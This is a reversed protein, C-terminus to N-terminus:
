RESEPSRSSVSSRSPEGGAAAIYLDALADAAAIRSRLRDIEARALAREFDLLELLSLEGSRYSALATEREDRAGALLASEYIALRTRATEYRERAALLAGRLAALTAQRDTQAATVDRASAESLAANARRATFPLSISAGFTPGFAPRGAELRFRQAGVFAVIRSRQEALLSRRAAEARDVDADAMRAVAASELLSDVDPAAPLRLLMVSRSSSEQLSDLLGRPDALSDSASLLAGLMRTSVRAETVAEARDTGVRLRETRIRLVDVYRADGVAFRTRLAEDAAALLSDEAALRRAIANSAAIRIVHQEALTVLRQGAAALRAQARTLEARALERSALRRPSPLLEREVAFRISGANTLDLGDPIEEADAILVAAPALGAARLRSEAAAVSARRAVLEPHRREILERLGARLATDPGTWREEQADVKIPDCLALTLGITILWHALPSNSPPLTRHQM